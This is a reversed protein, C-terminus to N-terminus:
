KGETVDWTLAAVASPFGLTPIALIAVQKMEAASVADATARRALSRSAGESAAAGPLTVRAM